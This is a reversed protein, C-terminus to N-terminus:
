DACELEEVLGDIDVGEHPVVPCGKLPTDRDTGRSPSSVLPCTGDQGQRDEHGMDSLLSPTPWYSDDKTQVLGETLLYKRARNFAQKNSAQNGTGSIGRAYAENRWVTDTVGCGSGTVARLAELAIRRAPTLKNTMAPREDILVLAISTVPKLDEDVIGLDIVVPMFTQPPPPEHDKTKTNTLTVTQEENTAWKKKCTYEFDLAGNLVSSGRARGTDTLGSHHVTAITCSLHDRLNDVAQIYKTMDPTSNEDGPGFNRNLTDIIILAPKGHEAAVEDAAQRVASLSSADLMQAAITSVFFLPATTKNHLEWATIRKKIGAKGEGCIYLVPGQKVMHGHWDNGTSICLGMDMTIFTKMSGPAGFFTATTEEELYNKILWKPSTCVLDSSSVFKLRRNKVKSVEVRKFTYETLGHAYSRIIPRKGGNWYFMAKTMSGGDYEPELPDALPKNDYSSPDNLVDAVAVPQGKMHAFYLLDGDALTHDQRAEIITRADNISINKEVSLKTAEQEIYQAKIIAQSPGALGALRDKIGQCAIEEDPTLDLLLATNLLIGEKVKPAPLKQVLGDKCVAGAAFDLREPSGVLLDILTRYLLIGSRSIEVRVYGQLFLRKGLAELFRPIDRGNEVFFYIHSGSGEGRLENGDKDEICASTSPTSVSAAPLIEPMIEAILEVLEDPCFSCLALSNEAVANDRAMDHDLMMLGPGDPYQIYEKTRAILPLAGAPRGALATELNAATTLAAEPYVSIGHVLAQHPALGRLGKAFKFPCTTKIVQITGQTLSCQSGDKVVKGSLPELRINKTLPGNSKTAVSFQVPSSFLVDTDTPKTM